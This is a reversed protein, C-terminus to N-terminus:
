IQITNFEEALSTAYTGYNQQKNKESEWACRSIVGDVKVLNDGRRCASVGTAM